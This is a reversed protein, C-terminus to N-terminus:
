RNLLIFTHAFNVPQRQPPGLAIVNVNADKLFLYNDYEIPFRNFVLSSSFTSFCLSHLAIKKKPLNFTVSTQM